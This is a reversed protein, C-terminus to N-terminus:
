RKRDYQWRKLEFGRNRRGITLGGTLYAHSTMPPILGSTAGEKGYEPYLNNDRCLHDILYVSLNRARSRYRDAVDAVSINATMNESSRSGVAAGEIRTNWDAVGEALTWQLLCPQVYTTMLTAYNGAWTPHDAILKDYLGGGLIPLLHLRQALDIIPRVLDNDVSTSMGSFQKVYDASILLKM